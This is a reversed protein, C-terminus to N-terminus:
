TGDMEIKIQEAKNGKRKRNLVMLQTKAVNMKLGNSKIWMSINNLDKEVIDSLHAPDSHSAYLMIDDAYLGISCSHM